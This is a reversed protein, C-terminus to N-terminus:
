TSCKFFGFFPCLDAQGEVLVHVKTGAPNTKAQLCLMSCLGSELGGLSWEVAAGGKRSKCKYLICLKLICTNDKEPILNQM